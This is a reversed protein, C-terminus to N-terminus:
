ANKLFDLLVETEIEDPNLGNKYTITWKKSENDYTATKVNTADELANM